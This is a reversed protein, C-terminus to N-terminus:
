RYVAVPVGIVDRNIQIGLGPAQPARICGDIVPIDVFATVPTYMDRLDLVCRLNRHAITQGLHTLSAFAVQSGATEQVSMTLGATICM